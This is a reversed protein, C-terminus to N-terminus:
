RVSNHDTGEGQLPAIVEHREKSPLMSAPGRQNSMPSSGSFTIEHQYYSIGYGNPGYVWMWWIYTMGNSFGPPLGPLTYSDVNGAIQYWYPELDYPDALNFEYEDTSIGRKQWSFTDPLSITSGADPSYLVINKIDFSCRYEDPDTTSSDITYCAWSSLQSSDDVENNWRVYAFQDVGLTPLSNFQYNGNANTRTTDYTSWDSGDYYRLLLETGNVPRGDATVNGYFSNSVVGSSGYLVIPVYSEYKDINIDEYDLVELYWCSLNGGNFSETSCVDLTWTGLANEGDFDSLSGPGTPMWATLYNAWTTKPDGFLFSSEDDLIFDAMDDGVLVFDAPEGGVNGPRASSCRSGTGSYNSTKNAILTVNTGEPSTLTVEVGATRIQSLYFALNLDDIVVNDAVHLSYTTVDIGPRCSPSGGGYIPPVGSTFVDFRKEYLYREAIEPPDDLSCNGITTFVSIVDLSSDNPDLALRVRMGSVLPTPTNWALSFTDGHPLTGADTVETPQEPLQLTTSLVFKGDILREVDLGIPLLGPTDRSDALGFEIGDTCARDITYYITTGGRHWRRAQVTGTIVLLLFVLMIMLATHKKLHTKM